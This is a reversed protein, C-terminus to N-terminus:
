ARCFSLRVVLWSYRSIIYSVFQNKSDLFTYYYCAILDRMLKLLQQSVRGNDTWLNINVKECLASVQKIKKMHLSNTAENKAHM